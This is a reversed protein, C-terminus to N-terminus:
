FEHGKLASTPDELQSKLKQLDKDLFYNSAIDDLFPFTPSSVVMLEASNMDRRSLANIASEGM